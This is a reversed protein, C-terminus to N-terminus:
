ARALVWVAVEAAGAGRLCRALEAVTHGSTLIDDVIAVRTGQFDRTTDFAARVNRRREKHALGVQPATARVRRVDQVALPRKLLRAIPRALELSQNYGRERLRARHLPVPVIVDATEGLAALHDAFQNGLVRGWDLRRHYKLGQVLRDVPPAYAYLARAREYVPPTSLCRGCPLADAVPPLDRPAACRPCAARLWPLSERCADCLEHRNPLRATCLLCRGPFLWSRLNALREYVM